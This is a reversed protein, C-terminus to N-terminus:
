GWQRTGVLLVCQCSHTAPYSSEGRPLAVFSLEKWLADLLRLVRGQPVSMAGVM